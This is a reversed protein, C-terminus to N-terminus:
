NSHWKNAHYAMLLKNPLLIASKAVTTNTYGLWFFKGHNHLVIFFPIRFSLFRSSCRLSYQYVSLVFNRYVNTIEGSPYISVYNMEIFIDIFLRLMLMRITQYTVMWFEFRKYLEFFIPSVDV